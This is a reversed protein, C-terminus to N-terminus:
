KAAVQLRFKPSYFKYYLSDPRRLAEAVEGVEVRVLGSQQEVALSLDAAQSVILLGSERVAGLAHIGHVVGADDIGGADFAADTAPHETRVEVTLSKAEDSLLDVTVVQQKPEAVAKWSKLGPATVDLVRH